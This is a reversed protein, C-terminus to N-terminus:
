KIQRVKTKTKKSCDEIYSGFEDKVIYIPIFSCDIKLCERIWKEVAKQAKAQDKKSSYGSSFPVEIECKFKYKVKKNSWKSM